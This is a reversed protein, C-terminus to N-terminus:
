IAKEDKSDDNDSPPMKRQFMVIGMAESARNQAEQLAHSYIKETTTPSTHGLYVAVSVVDLGSFILTSAASHRLMHPHVHRLGAREATRGLVENVTDPHMPYGLRKNQTFLFDAPTEQETGTRNFMKLPAVFCGLFNVLLFVSLFYKLKRGTKYYLHAYKM